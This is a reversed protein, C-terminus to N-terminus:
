VKECVRYYPQTVLSIMSVLLKRINTEPEQWKRKKLKVWMAQFFNLHADLDQYAHSHFDSPSDLEIDLDIDAYQLPQKVAYFICSCPKENITNEQILVFNYIRDIYPLFRILLLGYEQM